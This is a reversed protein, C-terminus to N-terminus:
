ACVQMKRRLVCNGKFLHCRTLWHNAECLPCKFNPNVSVVDEASGVLETKDDPFNGQTALKTGQYVKLRPHRNRRKADNKDLFNRSINTVSGFVPHNAVRAKTQVFDAIDDISVERKEGETITDANERWKQRLGFLLKEGIKQM